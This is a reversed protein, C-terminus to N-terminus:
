AVYQEAMVSVNAAVTSTQHAAAATLTLTNPTPTAGDTAVVVSGAADAMALKAICNGVFTDFQDNDTETNGVKPSVWTLTVNIASLTLAATATAKMAPLVEGSTYTSAWVTNTNSNEHDDGAAYIAAALGASTGTTGGMAILQGVTLAAGVQHDADSAVHANFYAILLAWNADTFVGTNNASTISNTLTIETAVQSFYSTIGAPVTVEVGPALLVDATSNATAGTVLFGAAQATSNGGVTTTFKAYTSGIVCTSIITLSLVAFAITLLWNKKKMKNKEKLFKEKQLNICTAVKGNQM